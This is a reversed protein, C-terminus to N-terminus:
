PPSADELRPLGCLDRPDIRLVRWYRAVIIVVIVAALPAYTFIEVANLQPDHAFEVRPVATYSIPTGVTGSAGTAGTAGFWNVALQQGFVNPGTAGTAGATVAQSFGTAGTAGTSPSPKVTITVRHDM